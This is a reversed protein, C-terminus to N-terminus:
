WKLKRLKMWKIIRKLGTKIRWGQLQKARRQTMVKKNGAKKDMGSKVPQLGVKVASTLLKKRMWSEMPKTMKQVTCPSIKMNMSKKDQRKRLDASVAEFTKLHWFDDVDIMQITHSIVVLDSKYSNLELPILDMGEVMMSRYEDVVKQREMIQQM